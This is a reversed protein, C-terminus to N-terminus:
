PLAGATVRKLPGLRDVCRALLATVRRAAPLGPAQELLLAEDAGTLPRLTARRYRKGRHRFGGPLTVTLEM